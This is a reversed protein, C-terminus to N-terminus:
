QEGENLRSSTDQTQTPTKNAFSIVAIHARALPPEPRTLFARASHIPAFRALDGTVLGRRRARTGPKTKSPAYPAGTGAQEVQPRSQNGTQDAPEPASM